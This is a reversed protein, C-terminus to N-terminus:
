FGESINKLEEKDLIFIDKGKLTVYGERKFESLLRIASETATGIINAIDERTLHVALASNEDTGFEEDLYLLTNALRQRVTKQGLNVIANDTNKLASAMNKLVESTFNHNEHLDRMIEEKPIFCVEMTDLATAKLNSAEDNILSREGLLDGRKILHIIQERGNESMKSVKCVGSKICFVGNVYEGENFIVEGKQIVKSTKCRSIRVLEDKTLTKLSNLQRVICQDCKGM